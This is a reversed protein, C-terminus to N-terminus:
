LWHWFRHDASITIEWDGEQHVGRGVNFHLLDWGFGLGMGFSTKFGNTPMISRAPESSLTPSRLSPRSSTDGTIGTSGFIRLTMWPFWISRSIESVLLGFRHGGFSRYNYGPLTHRGGLLYQFQPSNTGLSIGARLRAKLDVKLASWYQQAQIDSYFNAYLDNTIKGLRSTLLAQLDNDISNSTYNLELYRNIGDNISRIERNLGSRHPYGVMTNVASRHREWGGSLEILDNPGLNWSKEVKLGSSFYPDLYDKQMLFTALTNMAGSSGPLVMGMDNLNNWFAQFSFHGEAQEKTLTNSLTPSETGRSYGFSSQIKWDPLIHATGGTGFVSGEARNRRYISSINPVFLRSKNFNDLSQTGSLQLALKRIEDMDMASTRNADSLDGLLDTNFIYRDKELTSLSAVAPGSFFPSPFDQNFKYNGIRFHTQITTGVPLDFLTSERRIEIKQDYPLWHKGNWVSNDTIIRIFDLSEDIYSSATFTVNMRVIAGTTNQLYISGMVGPDEPKKPRLNLHYVKIDESDPIAISISDSIKFDYIGTANISLPHALGRIEDGGGLYFSDGFNDQVVTLHDLHYQINTPLMKEERQGVIVQRTKNPASWYIDLAVQDAKVLIRNESLPGDAFFYVHGTAEAQYNKFLSDLILQSRLEQGRQVIALTQPDNWSSDSQCLIVSPLLSAAIAGILLLSTNRKSQVLNLPFVL